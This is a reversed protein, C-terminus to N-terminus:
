ANYSFLLVLAAYVLMMGDVLAVFASHGTHKRIYKTVIATIVATLGAAVLRGTDPHITYQAVATLVFLVLSFYVLRYARVVGIKNPLTEINQKTDTQMDRIDFVVCLAFVFVFRMLVELPYASIPVGRYQMPLVATAGAWVATLVTIKLLGYERLRKRDGVPLAPIFYALAFVCLVCLSALMEGSLFYVGSLCLGVGLLLFVIYQFSSGQPPKATGYVWPVLRSLNYVLLTSGFVARHLSSGVPIPVGPEIFRETVYCLGFACSATFLSTSVLLGPLRSLLRM